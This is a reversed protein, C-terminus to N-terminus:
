ARAGIGGPAGAIVKLQEVATRIDM